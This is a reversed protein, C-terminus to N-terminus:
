EYNGALSGSYAACASLPACFWVFSVIHYGFNEDAAVAALTADGLAREVCSIQCRHHRYLGPLVPRRLFFNEVNVSQVYRM